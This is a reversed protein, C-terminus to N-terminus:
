GVVTNVGRGEFTLNSAKCYEVVVWDVSKTPPWPLSVRLAGRPAKPLLVNLEVRRDVRPAQYDHTWALGDVGFYSVQSVMRVQIRIPDREAERQAQAHATPDCDALKPGPWALYELQAVGGIAAERQLPDMFPRIVAVARGNENLYETRVHSRALCRLPWVRPERDEGFWTWELTPPAVPYTALRLSAPPFVIDSWPTTWSRRGWALAFGLGVVFGYACSVAVPPAWELTRAHRSGPAPAGPRQDDNIVVDDGAKGKDKIQELVWELEAVQRWAREASDVAARRRSALSEAVGAYADAERRAAQWQATNRWAIVALLLMCVAAAASFGLYILM